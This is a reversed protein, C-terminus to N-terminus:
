TLRRYTSAIKGANTCYRWCLFILIVIFAILCLSAVAILVYLLVRPLRRYFSCGKEDSSDGCNNIGDCVLNKNICDLSTKCEFEGPCTGNKTNTCNIEDSHDLCNFMGDCVLNKDICQGDGCQFQYKCTWNRANCGTEDSHDKCNFKGDCVLTKNICTGDKCKFQGACSKKDDFTETELFLFLSNITKFTIIMLM